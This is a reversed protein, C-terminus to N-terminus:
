VPNKASSGIDLLFQKDDGNVGDHIAVPEKSSERTEVIIEDKKVSDSQIPKDFRIEIMTNGAAFMGDTDSFAIATEMSPTDAAGAVPASFISM